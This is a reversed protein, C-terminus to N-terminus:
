KKKFPRKPNEPQEWNCTVSVGGSLKFFSVDSPSSSSVVDLEM